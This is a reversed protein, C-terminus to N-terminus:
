PAAIPPPRPKDRTGSKLIAEGAQGVPEPQRHQRQHVRRAGKGAHLRLLAPLCLGDGTRGFLAQRQAHGHHRRDDAFASRAAASHQLHFHELVKSIAEQLQPQLGVLSMLYQKNLRLPWRLSLTSVLFKVRMLDM